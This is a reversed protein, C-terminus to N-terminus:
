YKKVSNIIEDIFAKKDVEMIVNVNKELNWSNQLDVVTAGTTYKGTLEVAVHLLEKTMMEPNIVDCIAVPDHLFCGDIGDKAHYKALNSLMEAVMKAIKNDVAGIKEIDERLVTAKHTANLGAMTIPIGSKFVIDAAEPDVYINFEASPTCNGGNVAGGMLSIREIKNILEPYRHLFMAINTLPGIPILTVKEESEQLVKAILDVAHLKDAKLTAEPLKAGYLGDEGHVEGATVLKRTMPRSYGLGVPVDIGAYSLVKLTNKAVKDLTQNGAVVTVAKVDLKENAFAMILAIVDDLGPDCDIIVPIKRL